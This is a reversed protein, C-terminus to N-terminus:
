RSSRIEFQASGCLKMPKIREVRGGGLAHACPCVAQNSGVFAIRVADAIKDIVFDAPPVARQKYIIQLLRGGIMGLLMKDSPQALMVAVVPLPEGLIEDGRCTNDRKLLQELPRTAPRLQSRATRSNLKDPMPRPDDSSKIIM